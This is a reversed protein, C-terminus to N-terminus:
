AQSFLRAYDRAGHVVHVVEIREHTIRYLILYRRHGCKRIDTGINTAVPYSQPKEARSLCKARLEHVFTIARDPDDRAIWDGISRLDALATQTLVVKM